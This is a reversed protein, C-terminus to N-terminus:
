GVPVHMALNQRVFFESAAVSCIVLLCVGADCKMEVDISKDENWQAWGIKKM